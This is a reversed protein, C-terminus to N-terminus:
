AGSHQLYARVSLLSLGALSAAEHPNLLGQGLAETVGRRREAELRHREGVLADLRRESGEVAALHEAASKSAPWDDTLLVTRRIRALRGPKMGAVRALAEAPVGESLAQAVSTFLDARAQREASLAIRLRDRCAALSEGAHWAEAPFAANRLDNSRVDAVQPEEWTQLLGM